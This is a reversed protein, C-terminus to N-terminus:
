PKAITKPFDPPLKMVPPINISVPATFSVEIKEIEPMLKIQNVKEYLDKANRFVLVAFGEHNGIARNAM